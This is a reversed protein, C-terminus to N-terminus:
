VRAVDVDETGEAVEEVVEYAIAVVPFELACAAVRPLGLALRHYRNRIANPSRGPVREAITAWKPGLASASQLIADDEAKTWPSLRGGRERSESQHARDKAIVPNIASCVHSKKPQGCRSCKYRSSMLTRRAADPSPTPLEGQAAASTSLRLWRNRVAEASRNALLAALRNREALARPGALGLTEASQLILRDEEPSWCRPTWRAEVHQRPESSVASAWTWGPPPTAPQALESTSEMNYKTPQLRGGHFFFSRKTSM